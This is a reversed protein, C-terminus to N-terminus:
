KIWDWYKIGVINTAQQSSIYFYEAEIISKSYISSFHVNARWWIVYLLQICETGINRLWRPRNRHIKDTAYWSQHTTSHKICNDCSVSQHQNQYSDKQTHHVTLQTHQHIPSGPFGDRVSVIYSSPSHQHQIDDMTVMDIFTVWQWTGQQTLHRRWVLSLVTIPLYCDHPLSQQDIINTSTPETCSVSHILKNVDCYVLTM